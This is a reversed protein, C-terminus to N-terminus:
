DFFMTEIENMMNGESRRNKGTLHCSVDKNARWSLTEFHLLVKIFIVIFSYIDNKAPFLRKEIWKADLLRRGKRKEVFIYLSLADSISTLHTIGARVWYNKTYVFFDFTKWLFFTSLCSM